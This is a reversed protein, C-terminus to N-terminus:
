RAVCSGPRSTRRSRGRPTRGSRVTAAARASCPRNPSRARSRTAPWPTRAPAAGTIQRAVEDDAHRGLRVELPPGVAGGHQLQGAPAVGGQDERQARQQGLNRVRPRHADAAAGGIGLQRRPQAHPGRAVLPGGADDAHEVRRAALLPDGRGAEPGVDRVVDRPDLVGLGRQGEHLPRQRRSLRSASRASRSSATAATRDSGRRSRRGLVRLDLRVHGLQLRAVLSSSAGPRRGSLSRGGAESSTASISCNRRCCRGSHGGPRRRAASTAAARRNASGTAGGGLAGGDAPVRGLRADAVDGPHMHLAGAVGRGDLARQPRSRQREKGVGPALGGDDADVELGLGPGRGPPQGHQLRPALRTRQGSLHVIWRRSKGTWRSVSGVPM